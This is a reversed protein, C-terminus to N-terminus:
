TCAHGTQLLAYSRRSSRGSSMSMPLSHAVFSCLSASGTAATVGAEAAAESQALTTDLGLELVETPPPLM